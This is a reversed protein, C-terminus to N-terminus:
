RDSRAGQFSAGPITGPIDLDGMIRRNIRILSAIRDLPNALYNRHLPRSAGPGGHAVFACGPGFTCAM